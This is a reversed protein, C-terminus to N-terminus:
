TGIDKSGERLCGELSDASFCLVQLSEVEVVAKVFYHMESTVAM